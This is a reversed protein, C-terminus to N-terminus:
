PLTARAVRNRAYKQLDVSAGGVALSEVAEANGFVVKFPPTGTLDRADGEKSIGSALTKGTKDKIEYWSSGSFRVSVTGSRSASEAPKVTETPQAAVPADVNVVAAKVGAVGVAAAPVAAGSDSRPLTAPPALPATVVGSAPAAPAVPTLPTPMSAAPTEAPAQEAAPAAQAPVTQGAAPVEKATSETNQTAATQSAFWQKLRDMGALAGGAVVVAVVVGILWRGGGSRRKAFSPKDSFSEGLGGEPRLGINTVPARANLRALQDDVDVQLARAYARILGKTFTMDPLASVDASEVASLKGPAVKLRGALDDVTLRQRERGARLREAIERLADDRDPSAAAPPNSAPTAGHSFDAASAVDRDTM